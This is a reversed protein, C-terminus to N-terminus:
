KCCLANQPAKDKVSKLANSELNANSSPCVLGARSCEFCFFIRNRGRLSYRIKAVSGEVTENRKGGEGSICVTDYVSSCRRSANQISSVSAAPRPNTCGVFKVKKIFTAHSYTRRISGHHHHLCLCDPVTDPGWWSSQAGSFVETPSHQQRSLKM